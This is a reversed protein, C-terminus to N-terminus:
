QYTDKFYRSDWSEIERTFCKNAIFANDKLVSILRANTQNASQAVLSTDYFNGKDLDCIIEKAFKEYNSYFPYTDQQYAKDSFDMMLINRATEWKIVTCLKENLIYFQSNTVSTQIPNEIITALSNSSSYDTEFLDITLLTESTISKIIAVENSDVIYIHTRPRIGGTKFLTGTGTITQPTNSNNQLNTNATISVTGFPLIVPRPPSSYKNELKGFVWSEVSDINRQIKQDKINSQSILKCLERVEMVSVFSM